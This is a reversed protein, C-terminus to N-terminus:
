IYLSRQKVFGRGVVALVARAVAEFSGRSGDVQLPIAGYAAARRALLARLRGERDDGALLPRDDATALRALLTEPDARLCVVVHRALYLRRLRPDVLTGGGTALVAGRRRVWALALRREAARFAAEGHRAFIEPIPLGFAEALEEDLDHFPVELWRALIRGVSSKGTGMFGTLVLLQGALLRRIPAWRM